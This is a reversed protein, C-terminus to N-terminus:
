SHYLTFSIAVYKDGHTSVFFDYRGNDM